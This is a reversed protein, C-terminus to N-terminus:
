AMALQIQAPKAPVQEQATAITRAFIADLVYSLLLALLTGAGIVAWGFPSPFVLSLFDRLPPITLTAALVGASGVVAALVSRSLSKETRGVELTQALQTTIISTYAVARAEMLGGPTGLMLVYGIFSPIASTIARRIMEYLLPRGLASTGERRLEALNRHEPQQLAVAIAPLTDTIANM